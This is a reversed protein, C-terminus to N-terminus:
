AVAKATATKAGSSGDPPPNSKGVKEGTPLSNSLVANPIASGTQNTGTATHSLM